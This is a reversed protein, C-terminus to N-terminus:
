VNCVCHESKCNYTYDAFPPHTPNTANTPSNLTELTIIIESKSLNEEFSLSVKYFPDYLSINHYIFILLSLMKYM